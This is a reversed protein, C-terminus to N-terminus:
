WTQMCEIPCLRTSDMSAQCAQQPVMCDSAETLWAHATDHQVPGERADLNPYQM